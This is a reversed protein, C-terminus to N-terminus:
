LVKMFQLSPKPLPETEITTPKGLSSKLPQSGHQTAVFGRLLTASFTVFQQAVSPLAASTGEVHSV